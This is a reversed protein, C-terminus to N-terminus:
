NTQRKTPNFLLTPNNLITQDMFTSRLAPIIQIVEPKKFTNIEPYLVWETVDLLSGADKIYTSLLSHTPM